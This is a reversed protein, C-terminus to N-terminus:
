YTALLTPLSRGVSYGIKGSAQLRRFAGDGPSRPPSLRVRDLMEVGMALFGAAEWKDVGARTMWTDAAHRWTQPTVKGPVKALRVATEISTTVTQFPRGNWEVFHERAIGKATWRRLHAGYGLGFRCPAASAEQNPTTQRLHRGTNFQLSRITFGQCGKSLSEQVWVCFRIALIARKGLKVPSRQISALRGAGGM